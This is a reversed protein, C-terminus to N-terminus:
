RQTALQSFFMQRVANLMDRTRSYYAASNFQGTMSTTTTKEASLDMNTKKEVDTSESTNSILTTDSVVPEKLKVYMYEPQTNSVFRFFTNGAQVHHMFDAAVYNKKKQVTAFDVVIDISVLNAGKFDYTMRVEQMRTNTGFTMGLQKLVDAREPNDLYLPMGTPALFLSHADKMTTVWPSDHQAGKLKGFFKSAKLEEFPIVEVGQSAFDAQIDKYLQDVITQLEAVDPSPIQVTVEQFSNGALPLRTSAGRVLAFEVSFNVIGIKKIKKYNGGRVLEVYQAAQTKPDASFNFPAPEAVALSAMLMASAILVHKKVSTVHM